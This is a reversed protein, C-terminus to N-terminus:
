FVCFVSRRTHTGKLMGLLTSLISYGEDRLGSHQYENTIWLKCNPLTNAADRTGTYDVFMDDVYVAAAGSAECQRLADRHYLQPWDSKAAILYAAEKIRALNPFVDFMFPFIMEGTFYIPEDTDLRTEWDMESLTDFVREAAWLSQVSPGDCYIAEHLVAFLPNTEFPQSSEVSKLFTFSLKKDDGGKAGAPVTTWASELLYHVFEFGTGVGLSVGLMLFRRVTLLGGGPLKVGGKQHLHAVVDRVRQKDQPYRKYYLESREVVRQYTHQYVEYPTRDIPPVGGTIIYAEVGHSAVSLYRMVCFGGFSQGLLTWKENEGLLVKRVIECDDVISDARFYTLYQAQDEATAFM